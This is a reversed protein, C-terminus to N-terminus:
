HVVGDTAVFGVPSKVFAGREALGIVLAATKFACEMQDTLQGGEVCFDFVNKRYTPKLSVSLGSSAFWLEFALDVVTIM